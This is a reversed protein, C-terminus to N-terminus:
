TFLDALQSHTPTYFFKITNVQVRDRVVHYDVEIHKTREHFIPNEGIHMAAQNEYFFLVLQPHVVELDKLLGLLWVVECMTMTM